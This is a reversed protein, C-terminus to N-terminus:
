RRLYQSQQRRSHRPIDTMSQRVHQFFETRGRAGLGAIILVRCPDLDAGRSTSRGNDDANRCCVTVLIKYLLAKSQNGSRTIIANSYAWYYLAMLQKHSQWLGKRQESIHLAATEFPPWKVYWHQETRLRLNHSNQLAYLVAYSNRWQSWWSPREHHKM